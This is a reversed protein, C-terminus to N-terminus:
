NDHSGDDSKLLKGKNYWRVRRYKKNQLLDIPDFDLYILGNALGQAHNSMSVYVRQIDSSHESYGVVNWHNGDTNKIIAGNDGIFYVNKNVAHNKLWKIMEHYNGDFFDLLFEEFIIINEEYHENEFIKNIYKIFSLM